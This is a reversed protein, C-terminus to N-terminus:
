LNRAHLYNEADHWHSLKDVDFAITADSMEIAGVRCDLVRCAQQEVDAVTLKKTAFKWVLRAGLMKSLALPNKRANYATELLNIVNPAVRTPILVCNGGTLEMGGLKAYTRKGGPFQAESVARTVVPYAIELKRERAKEIFSTFTQASVLPIDCTCVLIENGDALAKTGRAFNQTMKDAAEVRVIDGCVDLVRESGVVAIREVGPVGRLAVLVQEIMPVGDVRVLARQTENSQQALDTPAEGGALILVDM